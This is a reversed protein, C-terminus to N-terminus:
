KKDKRYTFNKFTCNNRLLFMRSHASKAVEELARRNWYMVTDKYKYHKQEDFDLEFEFIRTHNRGM